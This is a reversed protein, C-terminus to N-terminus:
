LYVHNQGTVPFSAVCFGFIVDCKLRSVNVKLDFVKTMTNQSLQACVNSRIDASLSLSDINELQVM